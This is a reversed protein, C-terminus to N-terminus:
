FSSFGRTDMPFASDFQMEGVFAHNSVSLSSICQYSSLESRWHLRKAWLRLYVRDLRIEMEWPNQKSLSFTTNHWILSTRSVGGVVSVSYDNQFFCPLLTEILGILLEGKNQMEDKYQIMVTLLLKHNQSTLAVPEDGAIRVEPFIAVELCSNEDRAMRGVALLVADLIMHSGLEYQLM